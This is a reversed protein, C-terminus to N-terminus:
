ISFCLCHWPMYWLCDMRTGVEQGAAQLLEPLQFTLPGVAVQQVIHQSRHHLELLYDMVGACDVVLAAQDSLLQRVVQVVRRCTRVPSIHHLATAGRLLWLRYTHALVARGVRSTFECPGMGHPGGDAPVTGCVASAPSCICSCM